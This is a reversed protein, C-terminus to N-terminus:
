VKEDLYKLFDEECICENLPTKAREDLIALLEPTLVFNDKTKQHKQIPKPAKTPQIKWNHDIAVQQLVLFDESPLEITQLM